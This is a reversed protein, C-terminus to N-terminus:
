AKSIKQYVVVQNRGSTKAIYVAHDAAALIEDSNTGHMSFVAIGLSVTVRVENGAWTISSEQISARWQEARMACTDATANPLVLIFEDGGYRCVIDGARTQSRLKQSVLQLVLDGAAHGFTDNVLKFHDIDLMVVSVPYAARLARAFERGITEALYRRNYLSTLPDRIAQERLEGQLAEIESLKEHLQQNAQQLEDAITKHSTVDRLITLSGSPQGLHSHLPTIHFSIYRREPSVMSFETEPGNAAEIISKVLGPWHALVEGIPDGILRGVKIELLMKGAPNIDAIRNKEDLVLLGDAMKEVLLERAVPVMELLKLRLLGVAVLVGTVSLTIATTDLGPMLNPIFDYVVEGLLPISAAALLIVVQYRYLDRTRLSFWVLVFTAVLQVIYCYGVYIWYLLGHSYILINSGDPALAYSTWILHHWENSFVALTALLPIIFLAAIMRQSLWKKRNFLELSFLLFFVTIPASGLYTMKGWFIKTTVVTASAELTDTLTWEIIALLMAFLYLGGPANRRRWAILAAVSSILAACLYVVTYRSVQYLMM